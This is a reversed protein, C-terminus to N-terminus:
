CVEERPLATVEMNVQALLPGGRQLSAHSATRQLTLYPTCWAWSVQYAKDCIECSFPKGGVHTVMHRELLSPASFVKGCTPCPHYERSHVEHIHKRHEQLTAFSMRCKKCDYPDEIDSEVTCPTFPLTSSLFFPLYFLYSFLCWLYTPPLVSFSISTIELCLAFMQTKPDKCTLAMYEGERDSATLFLGPQDEATGHHRQETRNSLVTTEKPQDWGWSWHALGWLFLKVGGLVSFDGWSAASCPRIGTVLLVRSVANYSPLGIGEVASPLRSCDPM